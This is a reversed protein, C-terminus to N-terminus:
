RLYNYTFTASASYIVAGILYDTWKRKKNATLIIGATIPLYRGAFATTKKAERFVNTKDKWFVPREGENYDGGPYKREWAHSGGWSKESFGFRKELVHPDAYLAEHTGWAVGGIVCLGFASLRPLDQKTWGYWQQETPVTQANCVGMWFFLCLITIRAIM